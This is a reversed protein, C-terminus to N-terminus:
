KNRTLIEDIMGYEKAEEAKMWYDRDETPQWPKEFGGIEEHKDKRIIACGPTPIASRWFNEKTPIPPAGACGVNGRRSLKGEKGIQMVRGFVVGGQNMNAVNSLSEIANKELLDDGDLFLYWNGSSNDAGTNRAASVGRNQNHKVIKIQPRFKYALDATNDSSCDDVVIIDHAKNSQQLVSTITDEIYESINYAPIIVSIKIM